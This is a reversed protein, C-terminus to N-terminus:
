VRKGNGALDDDQEEREAVSRTEGRERAAVDDLRTIGRSWRPGADIAPTVIHPEPLFVLRSTSAAVKAYPAVM